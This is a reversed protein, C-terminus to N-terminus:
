GLLQQLCEYEGQDGTTETSNQMQRLSAVMATHLPRQPAIAETQTNKTPTHESDELRAENYIVFQTVTDVGDNAGVPFNLIQSVLKKFRERNSCIYNVRKHKDDWHYRGPFRVYGRQLYSAANQLRRRKGIHQGGGRGQTTIDLWSGSWKFGRNDLERLVYTKWLAVQGKIGGQGECLVYDIRTECIQDVIWEQMAVPNGPFFRVDVMYARGNPTLSWKSAATESSARGSTASPDISLWMEGKEITALREQDKAMREPMLHSIKEVMPDDPDAPYYRLHRVLKDEEATCTLKYVQAYKTPSLTNRERRLFDVNLHSTPWIPIPNGDEDDKIRFQDVAIRWGTREGDRVQRRIYGALDNEHWPTCILRIRGDASRLRKSIVTDFRDNIQQRLTPEWQVKSPCPDDMYIRDYGNGQLNSTSAGGEVTPERSFQNPRTITFRQNSDEADDKRTLVRLHPYLARFYSSRFVRKLTGIEKNAKPVTDYLVLVRLSPQKAIDYVIQGRLSTTKSHGPPAMLLSHPHEDDNWVAFFDQQVKDMVFIKNTDPTRGVYTWMAIANTRAAHQLALCLLIMAIWRHKTKVDVGPCREIAAKLENLEAENKQALTQSELTRIPDFLEKGHESLREGTVDHFTDALFKRRRQADVDKLEGRNVKNVLDTFQQFYWEPEALKEPPIEEVVPAAHEADAQEGAPHESRAM